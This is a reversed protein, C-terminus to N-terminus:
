AVLGLAPMIDYKTQQFCQSNYEFRDAIWAEFITADFKTETPWPLQPGLGNLHPLLIHKSDVGILFPSEMLAWCMEDLRLYNDQLFENTQFPQCSDHLDGPTINPNITKFHDILVHRLIADGEMAPVRLAANATSAM